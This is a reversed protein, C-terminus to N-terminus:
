LGMAGGTVNATIIIVIVSYHVTSVSHGPVVGWGRGMVGKGTLVAVAHVNGMERPEALSSPCRLTVHSSSGFADNIKYIAIQIGENCKENLHAFGDFNPQMLEAQAKQHM